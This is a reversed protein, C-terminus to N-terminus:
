ISRLYSDVAGRCCDWDGNMNQFLHRVLSRSNRVLLRCDLMRAETKWAVKSSDEFHGTYSLITDMTIYQLMNYNM